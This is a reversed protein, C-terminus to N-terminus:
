NQLSKWHSKTINKGHNETFQYLRNNINLRQGDDHTFPQVTYSFYRKSSIPLFTELPIKFYLGKDLNDHGKSKHSKNTLTIYGGIIIGTDFRRALDITAGWDKALYRGLHLSANMDYFPLDSYISLHGTTVNYKQFTFLQNFARQWVHNIDMGLGLPSHNPKYLMEGGFGGFMSEFYGASLRGYFAPAFQLMRDFQLHAIHHRGKHAYRRINTRVRPLDTEGSPLIQDLRSLLTIGVEGSALWKRQYSAEAGCAAIMQMRWPEHANFLGQTIKPYAYFGYSTEKQPNFTASKPIHGSPNIFKSRYWLEEASMQKNGFKELHSRLFTVKGVALGHDLYILHIEEIRNPLIHTLHKASRVYSAPLHLDDTNEVWLTASVALMNIAHISLGKKSLEEIIEAEGKEVAFGFFDPMVNKPRMKIPPPAKQIRPLDLGKNLNAIISVGLMFQNGHELGASFQLWPKPQYSLGINLPTKYAFQKAYRESLMKDGSYELKLNLGKIPTSYEVGFFPSARKGSFYNQIGPREYFGKMSKRRKFTKAFYKLPNSIDGRSGLRGWGIGATLDFDYYRKSFVVYEGRFRSSGIIDQIGVAIQPLFKQEKTLLLKIAINRDSDLIFYKGSRYRKKYDFIKTFRATIELWPFFQTNFCIHNNPFSHHLSINSQGVEQMRASRTEILGVSGM